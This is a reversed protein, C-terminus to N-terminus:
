HPIIMMGSATAAETDHLCGHDKLPLLYPLGSRGLQCLAKQSNRSLPQRTLVDIRSM